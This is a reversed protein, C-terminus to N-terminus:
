ADKAVHCSQLCALLYPLGRRGGKGVGNPSRGGKGVRSAEPTKPGRPPSGPVCVVADYRYREFTFTRPARARYAPLDIGIPGITSGLPSASERFLGGM